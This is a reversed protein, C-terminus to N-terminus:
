SKIFINFLNVLNQFLNVSKSFLNVLKALLNVLKILKLSIRELINWTNTNYTFNFLNPKITFELFLEFNSCFPLWNYQTDIISHYKGINELTNFVKWHLHFVYSLYKLKSAFTIWSLVTIITYFMPFSM